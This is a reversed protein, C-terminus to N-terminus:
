IHQTLDPSRFSHSSVSFVSNVAKEHSFIV